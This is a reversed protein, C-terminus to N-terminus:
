ERATFRRFLFWACAMVVAARLTAIGMAGPFAWAAGDKAIALVQYGALAFFIARNDARLVLLYGLWLILGTVIGGAFWSPVTEVTGFTILGVLVFFGTGVAKRRSWGATFRDIAILFVSLLIAQGFYGLVPEALADLWASYAGLPAYNAWVPSLHPGFRSLAATFGATAAALALGAVAVQGRPQQTASPRWVASFGGLLAIGTALLVTVILGGIVVLGAQLRYPQATSFGAALSPYRNLINASGTLAGIGLLLLFTAVGFRRRSWSIIAGVIGAIAAIFVLVRTGMEVVDPIVRRDREGRSWEEPVHVFRYGDVVRDGAIQISIRADGQRLPGATDSFTFLWDTRNKLRSPAASIEKFRPPRARFLDALAREAIVRAEGESLSGGLKDEPLTHKFRKVDGEPSMSVLYEEAREAVDGEFRAFRVTRRPEALYTGLLERYADRGATQWVFKHPEGPTGAVAPIVKWEPGLQVGQRALENRATREADARTTRV